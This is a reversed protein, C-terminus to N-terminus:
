KTMYMWVKTGLSDKELIMVHDTLSDIAFSGNIFPGLNADATTVAINKDSNATAWSFLASDNLSALPITLYAMGAGGAKVDMAVSYTITFGLTDFSLGKM